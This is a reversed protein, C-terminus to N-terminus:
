TGAPLLLLAEAESRHTGRNQTLEGEGGMESMLLCFFPLCPPAYSEGTESHLSSKPNGGYSMVHDLVGDGNIDAHLGNRPLHLKCITRGTYLHIAEIGEQPVM